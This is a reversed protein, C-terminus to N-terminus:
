EYGASANGAAVPLPLSRVGDVPIETARYTYQVTRPARGTTARVQAVFAQVQDSRSGPLYFGRRDTDYSHISVPVGDPVGQVQPTHYGCAIVQTLRSGPAVAVQWLVPEYATLLLIVPRGPAAVPVAVTGLAHERFQRRRGDPLSDEYVSVVHVEGEVAVPASDARRAPAVSTGRAGAESSAAGPTPRVPPPGQPQAPSSEVHLLYRVEKSFGDALYRGGFEIVHDGPPLPRLMFWYGDSMAPREGEASQITFCDTTQRWVPLHPVAHYDVEVRLDAASRTMQDLATRLAPCRAPNGDKAEALTVLVPFFLHRGTPVQCERVLPASTTGGGLFWVPGQQREACRAGTKDDAPDNGPGFSRVWRWYAQSWEAQSRGEVVDRPPVIAPPLAAADVPAGLVATYGPPPAQTFPQEGFNVQVAGADILGRMSTAATVQFRYPLGVRLARGRGSGPEGDTWVRGRRAYLRGADLDAAIGITISPVKMEGLRGGVIRISAGQGYSVVLDAPRVPYPVGTVQTPDAVGILLETELARTAQSPEITVEFYWKGASRAHTSVLRFEAPGQAPRSDFGMPPPEGGPVATLTVGSSPTQFGRGALEATRETTKGLVCAARPEDATVHRLWADKSGAPFRSGCAADRTRIWARQETRLALRGAADLSAALTEYVRNLEV